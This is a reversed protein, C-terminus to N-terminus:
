LKLEHPDLVKKQVGHADVSIHACLISRYIGLIFFDLNINLFGLERSM